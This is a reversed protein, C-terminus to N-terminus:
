KAPKGDLDFPKLFKDVEIKKGNDDMTEVKAFVWGDVSSTDVGANIFIEPNLVFVIDKDNTTMDKAWEFMNGNSLAVGYHDLAAHYKISDRYENVIQEYAKVSSVDGKYTLSDEGLETGVIIKDDVLVGEPLKSADLGADLFPKADIVLQVDNSTTKSYDKSWLFRATGDPSALSYGGFETDETVKDGLTTVVADFSKISQEGVVDLKNGCATLSVIAVLSLTILLAKKLM